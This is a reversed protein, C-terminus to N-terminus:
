KSETDAIRYLRMDDEALVIDFGPTADSISNLGSWAEAGGEGYRPMFNESESAPIGQDLLLVYEAGINDVASQVSEDTAIDSLGKRIINADSTEDDVRTSRNYTRMGDLGFAFVSGDHPMNVVLADEPILEMAQRVFAEEETSYSKANQMNSAKEIRSKVIGFPTEITTERNSGLHYNPFFTWCCFCTLVALCTCILTRNCSAEDCPSNSRRAAHSIAATAMKIFAALGISAIPILFISLLYAMRWPDNYWFGSFFLKADSGFGRSAIYAVAVLVVPVLPWYRKQCLLATAGIICCLVLAWQPLGETFSLSVLSFLNSALHPDIKSRISYHVTASFAPILCMAMWLGVAFAIYVCLICLAKRSGKLRGRKRNKVSSYLLSGLYPALFVYAAFLTSTHSTALAIVSIITTAAMQAIRRNLPESNRASQIFLALFSPLLVNGLLNAYIIGRYAMFWPVLAFSLCVVAGVLQIMRSKPFLSSALAYMSCPYVMGMFVANCSNVALAVECHTIEITLAIIQHWAAPYFGRTAEVAAKESLDGNSALLPSWEGTGLFNQILSFHTISDFSIMYSDPGDLSSVFVYFCVIVGFVIYTILLLWQSLSSDARRASNNSLINGCILAAMGAITVPLLVSLANCSIGVIGYVISVTVITGISLIPACAVAIAGKLQLAKAYLVGPLFLICICALCCIIFSTWM